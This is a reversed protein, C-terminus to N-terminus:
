KHVDGHPNSNKDAQIIKVSTEQPHQVIRQEVLSGLSPHPLHYIRHNESSLQPASSSPKLSEQSSESLLTGPFKGM